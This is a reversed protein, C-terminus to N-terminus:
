KIEYKVKLYLTVQVVPELIVPNIVADFGNADLGNFYFTRTKRASKITHTQRNPEGGSAIGEAGFATYSDYQKSPFYTAYREAYIQPSPRVKTGLLSEYRAAKRKIVKAAEDMLRDQIAPLDKLLYDVKILDHVGSKAAVGVFRDLQSHDTYHISLNKKLEFGVLKEEALNETIEYGYIKTQTIYDVFVDQDAVALKRLGDRIEKVTNEMRQSCEEVTKGEAVLGFTVVYEAAKENLLVNAEIFSTTSTPPQDDKAIHRQVAEHQEARSEGSQNFSANGGFQAYGINPVAFLGILVILSSQRM